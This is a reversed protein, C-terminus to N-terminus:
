CYRPYSNRSIAHACAEGNSYYVKRCHLLLPLIMRVKAAPGQDSWGLMGRRTVLFDFHGLPLSLDHSVSRSTSATCRVWTPSRLSYSDGCLLPHVDLAFSPNEVSTSATSSLFSAHHVKRCHSLPSLLVYGAFAITLLLDSPTYILNPPPADAVSVSRSGFLVAFSSRTM